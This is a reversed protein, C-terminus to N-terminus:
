FGFTFDNVVAALDDEVNQDADGDISILDDSSEGERDVDEDVVM